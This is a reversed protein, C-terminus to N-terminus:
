PEPAGGRRRSSAGGGGGRPQSSGSGPNYRPSSGSSQGSSRGGQYSPPSSGRRSDSSGGRPQASGGGYSPSRGAGADPAGYTRPTDYSRTRGSGTDAPSYSRPADYTRTRERPPTVGSSGFSDYSRTRGLAPDPLGNTRSADYPSPTSRSTARPLASSSSAGPLMRRVEDPLARARYRSEPSVASSSSGGWVPAVTDRRGRFAQTDPTSRPAQTRPTDTRPAGNSYTRQQARDLMAAATNPAGSAGRPGLEGPQGGPGRGVAAGGGPGATSRDGGASGRPVAAGGAYGRPVAHGYPAQRQAVFAGRMSPALHHGDIGAHHVPMHSNFHDRSMVNWGRWPDYGGGYYAGHVGWHGFVPYDNYGLACWSVYGPYTAWYVWAPAWVHAPMWYWGFGVSFGWRGYHHTPWGWPDNGIWFSGWAPYDRWYGVSYPRWDAAVSPYWVQGYGPEDRWTGYRDFTSAYVTLDSPLYQVSVTATQAGRRAASWQDFPDWRASNFYQPASPALGERVFAREGARIRQAGLENVLTAEGRMVAADVNAGGAGGAASIRYEGPGSTQLSAASTDVQYRTARGPDRTGRVVLNVRGQLLRLLDSALVDVTTDRDVHLLSGDPLLVEVRGDATRLRDGDLLPLNAAAPETRGERDISAQGDIFAIHAPPPGPPPTDTAQAFSSAPWAVLCAIVWLCARRANTM